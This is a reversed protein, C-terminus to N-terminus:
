SWILRVVDVVLTDKESRWNAGSKSVTESITKENNAKIIM